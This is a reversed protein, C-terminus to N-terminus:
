TAGDAHRRSRQRARYWALYALLGDREDASLDACRAAGAESVQHPLHPM